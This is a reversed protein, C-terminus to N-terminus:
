VDKGMEPMAEDAFDIMPEAIGGWGGGGSNVKWMWFDMTPYDEDVWIRMFIDQYGDRQILVNYESAILAAGYTGNAGSKVHQYYSGDEENVPTFVLDCGTIGANDNGDVVHGSYAILDYVPAEYTDITLNVTVTDDATIEVEQSRTLYGQKYASILWTGEPVNEITYRGDSGTYTFPDVNPQTANVLCDDIPNGYEDTIVGTVAGVPQNPLEIDVTNAANVENGTPEVLEIMDNFSLHRYASAFVYYNGAPIGEFSYNGDADANTAYYGTFYAVDSSSHSNQNEWRYRMMSPNDVGSGTSGSQTGGSSDNAAGIAAEAWDGWDGSGDDADTAMPPPPSDYDDYSNRAEEAMEDVELVGPLAIDDYYYATDGAYIFEVYAGDIPQGDEDHITGAVSTEVFADLEITIDLTGTLGDIYEYYSGNLYGEAYAEGWLSYGIVEEDITFTGDAGTTVEFYQPEYYWPALSSSRAEDDDDDGAYGPETATGSDAGVEAWAIDEYVAIDDIGSYGTDVMLSVTAGAVPAGTDSDVVTGSVLLGDGPNITNKPVMSLHQIISTDEPVEVVALESQYGTLHATLTWDGPTLGTFAYHGGDSEGMLLEGHPSFLTLEVGDLLGGTTEDYINGSLSGPLANPDVPDTDSVAFNEGFKLTIVQNDVPVFAGAGLVVGNRGLSIENSNSVGNPFASSDLTFQGAANTTVGTSRGEVRVSLDALPAGTADQVTATMRDFDVPTPGGGGSCAALALVAMVLLILIMNRNM